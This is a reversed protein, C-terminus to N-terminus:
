DLLGVVSTSEPAQCARSCWRWRHCAPGCSRCTNLYLRLPAVATEHSRAAPGDFHLYDIVAAYLRAGSPHGRVQTLAPTMADAPDANGEPDSRSATRHAGPKAGPLAGQTAATM